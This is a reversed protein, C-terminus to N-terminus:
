LFLDLQLRQVGYENKHLENENDPLGGAPPAGLSFKQATKTLGRPSKGEWPELWARGPGALELELQDGIRSPRRVVGDIRAYRM